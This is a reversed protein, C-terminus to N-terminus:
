KYQINTKQLFALLTRSGRQPIHVDTITGETIYSISSPQWLDVQLAPVLRYNINLTPPSLDVDFHLVYNQECTIVAFVNEVLRFPLFIM